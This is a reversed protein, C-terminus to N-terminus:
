RGEHTVHNEKKMSMGPANTKWYMKAPGAVFKHSILGSSPCPHWCSMRATSLYVDSMAGPCGPMGGDQFPWGTRLYM